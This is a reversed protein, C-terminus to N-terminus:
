PRQAGTLNDWDSNPPPPPQKMAEQRAKEEDELHKLIADNEPKRAGSDEPPKEVKPRESPPPLQPEPQSPGTGVIASEKTPPAESSTAQEGPLTEGAPTEVKNGRTAEAAERRLAENREAVVLPDSTSTRPDPTVFERGKGPTPTQLHLPADKDPPFFVVGREEELPPPPTTRPPAAGKDYVQKVAVDDESAHGRGSAKAESVIRRDEETQPASVLEGSGKAKDFQEQTITTLKGLEHAEGPALQGADVMAQVAARVIVFALAFKASGRGSGIVSEVYNFLPPFLDLFPKYQRLDM